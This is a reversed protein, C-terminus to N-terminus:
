GFQHVCKDVAPGVAHSDTGTSVVPHREGTSIPYVHDVRAALADPLDPQGGSGQRGVDADATFARVFQEHGGRLALRQQSDPEVAVVGLCGEERLSFSRWRSASTTCILRWRIPGISTGSSTIVELPTQADLREIWDDIGTCGATDVDSLNYSTLKDLWKTMLDFRKKDVLAAPYSKFATHSFLLPV